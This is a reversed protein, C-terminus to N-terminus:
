NESGMSESHGDRGITELSSICLMVVGNVYCECKNACRRKLTLVHIAVIGVSVTEHQSM